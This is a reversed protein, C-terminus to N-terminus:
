ASPPPQELSEPVTPETPVPRSPAATASREALVEQAAARAVGYQQATAQQAAYERAAAQRASQEDAHQQAVAQQAAFDAQARARRAEEQHRRLRGTLWRHVADVCMAIVLYVIAAVLYSLDLVSSAGVDQTPFIGRFPRMANETSRYVWEVFSAEPNAGALHLFFATALLIATVLALAYVVWVVIRALKLLPLLPSREAEEARREYEQVTPDTAATM